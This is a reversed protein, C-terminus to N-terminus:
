EWWYTQVEFGAARHRHDNKLSRIPARCAARHGRQHPLDHNRSALVGSGGRWSQAPLSENEARTTPPPETSRNQRWAERRRFRRPLSADFPRQHGYRGAPLQLQSRGQRSRGGFLSGQHGARSSSSRWRVARRVRATAARFERHGLFPQSAASSSRQWRVTARRLLAANASRPEVTGMAPARASDPGAAAAM